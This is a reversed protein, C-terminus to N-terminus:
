ESSMPPSEERRRSREVILAGCDDPSPGVDQEKVTSVAGCHGCQVNDGLLDIRVRNRRGCVRCSVTLFGLSLPNSKSPM